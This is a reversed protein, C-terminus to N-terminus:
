RSTAFAPGPLDLETSRSRPASCRPPASRRATTSTSCRGPIMRRPPVYDAFRVRTLGPTNLLTLSSRSLLEPLRDPVRAGVARRDPPLAARRSAARCGRAMPARRPLRLRGAAPASRTYITGLPAFLVGSALPLLRGSRLSRRFVYRRHLRGGWVGGRCGPPSARFCDARHPRGSGPPSRWRAALALLCKKTTPSRRRGRNEVRRSAASRGRRRWAWLGLRAHRRRAGRSPGGRRTAAARGEQPRASRLSVAAAVVLHLFFFLM